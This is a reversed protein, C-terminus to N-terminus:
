SACRTDDLLLFGYLCVGWVLYTSVAVLAALIVRPMHPFTRVLILAPLPSLVLIAMM